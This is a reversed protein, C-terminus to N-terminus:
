ANGNGGTLPQEAGESVQWLHGPTEDWLVSVTGHIDGLGPEASPVNRLSKGTRANIM